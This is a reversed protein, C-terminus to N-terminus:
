MMVTPAMSKLLKAFELANFIAMDNVVDHKESFDFIKISLKNVFPFCKTDGIYDILLKYAIGSVIALM